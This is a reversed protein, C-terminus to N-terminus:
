NTKEDETEDKRNIEPDPPKVHKARSAPLFWLLCADACVIYKDQGTHFAM